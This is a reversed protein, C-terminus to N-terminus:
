VPVDWAFEGPAVDTSLHSTNNFLECGLEVWHLRLSQRVKAAEDIPLVLCLAPREYGLRDIINDNPRVQKV